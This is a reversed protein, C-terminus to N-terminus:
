RHRPPALVAVTVIVTVSWLSAGTEVAMGACVLLSPLATASSTDGWKASTSVPSTSVNETPPRGGPSPMLGFVPTMLPESSWEADTVPGYVTVTVVVSAFPAM